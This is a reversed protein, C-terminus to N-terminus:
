QASSCNQVIGVAFFLNETYAKIIAQLYVGQLDTKASDVLLLTDEYCKYLYISQNNYNKISGLLVAYQTQGYCIICKNFSLLTFLVVYLIIFINKNDKINLILGKFMLYIKLVTNM